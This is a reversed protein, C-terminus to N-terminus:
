DIYSEGHTELSIIEDWKADGTTLFNSVAQAAEVNTIRGYSYELQNEEGCMPFYLEHLKGQSRHVYDVVIDANAPTLALPDFGQEAIKCFGGICAVSGCEYAETTLNMNFVEGKFDSAHPEELWTLFPLRDLMAILQEREWPQIGLEEATKFM